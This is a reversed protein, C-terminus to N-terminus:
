DNGGPVPTSGQQSPILKKLSRVLVRDFIMKELDAFHDLRRRDNEKEAQRIDIANQRRRADRLAKAQKLIEHARKVGAEPLKHEALFKEVYTDWEDQQKAPTSKILWPESDHKRRYQERLHEGARSLYTLYQDVTQGLDSSLLELIKPDPMVDHVCVLEWFEDSSVLESGTWFQTGDPTSFQTGNLAGMDAPNIEKAHWPENFSAREVDITKYPETSDRQYFRTSKPVWRGDADQYATESSFVLEGAVYLAASVPQGGLRDDFTWKLRYHGDQSETAVTPLGNQYGETFKGSALEEYVRNELRFPNADTEDTIKCPALGITLIDVPLRVRAAERPTVSGSDPREACPLDWVAGEYIMRSRTGVDYKGPPVAQPLADPDQPDPRVCRAAHTGNQDGLNSEWLTEDSSRTVFRERLGANCSEAWSITWEIQSTGIRPAELLGRLRQPLDARQPEAGAGAALLFVLISFLCKMRHCSRM